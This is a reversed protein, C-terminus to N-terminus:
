IVDLFRLLEVLDDLLVSDFYQDIALCEKRDDSTLHIPLLIRQPKDVNISMWAIKVEDFKHLEFNTKLFGLILSAQPHPSDNVTPDYGAINSCDGTM